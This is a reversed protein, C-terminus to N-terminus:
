HAAARTGRKAKPRARPTAPPMPPLMEEALKTVEHNVKRVLDYMTGITVDEVRKMERVPEKLCEVQGLADLPTHLIAKHVDEATRAGKDIAERVLEPLSKKTTAM